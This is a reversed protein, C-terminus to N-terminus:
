ECLAESGPDVHALLARSAEFLSPLQARDKLITSRPRTPAMGCWCGMACSTTCTLTSAFARCTHCASTTSHVAWRPDSARVAHPNPATSLADEVLRALDLDPPAALIVRRGHRADYRLCDALRELMHACQRQLRLSYLDNPGAGNYLTDGDRDLLM